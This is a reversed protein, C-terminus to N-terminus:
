PLAGSVNQNSPGRPTQGQNYESPSAAPGTQTNPYVVTSLTVGQQGGRGSWTVKVDLEQTDPDFQVLQTAWQYGPFEPAFDGGQNGQQWGGTGVMENLKLLALDAAETRRKSTSAANTALSIARMTPPLVIAILLMAALVEVLTFARARGLSRHRPAHGAMSHNAPSITGSITM